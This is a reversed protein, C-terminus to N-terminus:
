LITKAYALVQQSHEVAYNARDMAEKAKNLAETGTGMADDAKKAASNALEMAERAMERTERLLRLQEKSDEEMQRFHEEEHLLNIVEKITDVRDDQFYRIMREVADKAQYRKGLLTDADLAKDAAEWAAKAKRIKEQALSIADEKELREEEQLQERKDQYVQEYEAEAQLCKKQYAALADEYEKKKIQSFVPAQKLLGSPKGPEEGAKNKVFLPKTIQDFEAVAQPAREQAEQLEQEANKLDQEAKELVELEDLLIKLRDKIEEKKMDIGM